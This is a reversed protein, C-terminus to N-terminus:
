PEDVLMRCGISRFNSSDSRHITKTRGETQMKVTVSSESCMFDLSLSDICHILFGASLGRMGKRITM